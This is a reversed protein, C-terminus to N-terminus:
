LFILFLWLLSQSSIDKSFMALFLSFFFTIFLFIRISSSQEFILFEASFINKLIKFCMFLFLLLGIAGTESLLELVINHSYKQMTTWRLNNFGNFSGLGWGIIPKEKIMQLSLIYTQIRSLIAGDGGFEGDDIKLMNQFRQETEFQKPTLNVLIIFSIIILIISYLHNLSIRRKYLQWLFGFTSFIVIGIIVARAGSLYTISLGTIFILFYFFISKTEKTTLLLLFVILTLFSITRAIFVHSWRFQSFQYVTSHDFPQIIIISLLIFLFGASIIHLFYSLYERSSSNTLLYYTVMINPVISVLISIVKHTGYKPNLSYLVTVVLYFIIIILVKVIHKVTRSKFFSKISENKQRNHIFFVSLLIGSSLIKLILASLSYNSIGSVSLNFLLLILLLYTVINKATQLKQM